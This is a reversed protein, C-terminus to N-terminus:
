AEFVEGDYREPEYVAARDDADAADARRGPSDQAGPGRGNGAPDPAPMAAAFGALSGKFLREVMGIAEREAPTTAPSASAMGAATGPAAGRAQGRSDPQRGDPRRAGGGLGQPKENFASPVQKQAFQAPGAGSELQPEQSGPPSAAISPRATGASAGPV